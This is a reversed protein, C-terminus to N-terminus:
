AASRDKGRELAKRMHTLVDEPVDFFKEPDLGLNKKTLKVEEEGLPSGHAEPTDQKNPSGFGIHTRIRILSPRGTEKQAARIAADIAALDNGDEVFQVHWGYAEFRKSVDETFALSTDGDISIHNDDYLCILNGLKQHGALSAAESSVGEMLDGDGVEVYVRYELMPHGPRDFRAALFKQGIAMGVSSSFGQGLPGTTMEIGAAHGYEPHGPTRSHLQRFSKLDDLTLGFGTLYLMSYLLMSGHGGSLVFRDRNPLHPNAPDFRLHNQWLAYVMPAAGMPMGPHGSKAKQVGDM